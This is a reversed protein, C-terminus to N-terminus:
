AGPQKREKGKSRCSVGGGGGKEEKGKGVRVRAGKRKKGMWIETRSENEKGNRVKGHEERKGRGGWGWFSQRLGELWGGEVVKGAAGLAESLGLVATVGMAGELRKGSRFPSFHPSDDLVLVTWAILVVSASFASVVAIPSLSVEPLVSLAQSTYSLPPSPARPFDDKRRKSRRVPTELNPHPSRNATLPPSPSPSPSPQGHAYPAPVSRPPTRMGYAPRSRKGRAGASTFVRSPSLPSVPSLPLPPPLPYSRPRKCPQRQPQPRPTPIESSVDERSHMRTRVRPSLPLPPPLPHSRPRPTRPRPLQGSDIAVSSTSHSDTTSNMGLLPSSSPPSTPPPSTPQLELDQRREVTRRPPQLRLVPRPRHELTTSTLPAPWPPQFM